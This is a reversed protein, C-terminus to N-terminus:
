KTPANTAAPKDLLMPVESALKFDVILDLRNELQFFKTATIPSIKQVFEPYYKKKLDVRRAEYDFSKEALLRADTENMTNYKDAYTKILQVREDNLKSLDSEYRKYIPWFASSEQPTFKMTETIITVKDARLSSRFAEIQSDLDPDGASKAQAWSRLPLSCIALILLILLAGRNMRNTM